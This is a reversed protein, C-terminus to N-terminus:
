KEALIVRCMRMAGTDLQPHAKLFDRVERVLPRCEPYKADGLAGLIAVFMGNRDRLDYVEKEGLSWDHWWDKKLQPGRKKWFVLETDLLAVLEKGAKPGGIKGMARILDHAIWASHKEKLLNRVVPLGKEGCLGLAAVAERQCVRLDTGLLNALSEAREGPDKVDLVQRLKEKTETIKLVRDKFQKETLDLPWVVQGGWGVQMFAFTEGGDIWAVSTEVGPGWGAGRWPAAQDPEGPGKAGKKLFLVMRLGSIHTIRKPLVKMERFVFIRRQEEASFGRLEPFTLVDDKKLEGKWSAVVTCVGDRKTTQTVEVIHM